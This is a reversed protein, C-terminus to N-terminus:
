RRSREVVSALPKVIFARVARRIQVSRALVAALPPSIEYYIAVLRRGASSRMLWEDRFASLAIVEPALADGCAATVIFCGSKLTDTSLVQTEGATQVHRDFIKQATLYNGKQYKEFFAKINGLYRKAEDLDGQELRISMMWLDLDAHVEERVDDLWVPAVTIERPIDQVAYAKKCYNEARELDDLKTICIKALNQYALVNRPDVGIAEKYLEVAGDIDGRNECDGARRWLDKSKRANEDM